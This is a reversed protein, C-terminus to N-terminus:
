GPTTRWLDGDHLLLRDQKVARKGLIRRHVAPLSVVRCRSAALSGARMVENGGQWPSHSAPPSRPTFSEPPSRWPTSNGAGEQPHVM